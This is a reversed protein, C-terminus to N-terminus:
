SCPPAAHVLRKCEVVDMQDAAVSVRRRVPIPLHEPTLDDRLLRIQASRRLDVHTDAAHRQDNAALPRTFLRDSGFGHLM